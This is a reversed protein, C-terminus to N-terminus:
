VHGGGRLDHFFQRIVTVDGRIAADGGIQLRFDVIEEILYVSSESLPKPIPVSRRSRVREGFFHRFAAPSQFRWDARPKKQPHVSHRVGMFLM